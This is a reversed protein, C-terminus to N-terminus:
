TREVLSLNEKTSDTYTILVTAVTVGGSGGQKYVYNETTASPYTIAIYDYADTVLGAGGGIDKVHLAVDTGVIESTVSYQASNGGILRVIKEDTNSM